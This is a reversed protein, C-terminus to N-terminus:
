SLDRVGEEIEGKELHCEARMSRLQASRQSIIIAKSVFAICEDYKKKALATEADKILQEAQDILKL